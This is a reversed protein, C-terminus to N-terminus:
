FISSVCVWRWDGKTQPEVCSRAEHSILSSSFLDPILGTSCLLLKNIVQHFATPVVTVFLVILLVSCRSPYFGAACALNRQQLLCMYMGTYTQWLVGPHDPPPKPSPSTTLHSWFLSIQCWSLEGHKSSSFHQTCGWSCWGWQSPPFSISQHNTSPDELMVIIWFMRGLCCLRPKFILM